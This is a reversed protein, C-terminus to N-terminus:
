LNVDAQDEEEEEELAPEAKHVPEPAEKAPDLAHFGESKAAELLQQSASVFIIETGQFM